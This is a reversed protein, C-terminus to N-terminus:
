DRRPRPPTSAGAKVELGALQALVVLEALSDARMKQMVRGRHVKVTHEGTGFEAAIVKNPKGTVVEEFVQRERPTLTAVRELVDDRVRREARAARDRDLATRIAAILEQNGFPKELFDVAGAKMAQATMPVDGHGSIFIIPVTARRRRLEEQLELGSIGPMRVDLVLCGPQEPAFASLFEEASAFSRPTYGASEVLRALARQVRPEDDVIYVIPPPGPTTETATMLM